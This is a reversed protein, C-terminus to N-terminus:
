STQRSTKLRYEREDQEMREIAYRLTTRSMNKGNDDLFKRLLEMDKKGIERLMWGTAKHILDHKHSLLKKVIRLTDKFEGARILRLTTVVSIRQEWINRSEALKDLVGREPYNGDPLRNLLWEGLVQECTLDVLDWNNAQRAHRLYFLAIHNRRTSKDESDNGRRPLAAKMEEALLLLACLRIEHWESYLLKEIESFDVKLKNCKVVYRTQPVKIGLFKDGEGYEGIGTKFFRSLNERQKENRLELMASIIKEATIPSSTNKDTRM